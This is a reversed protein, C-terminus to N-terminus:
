AKKGITYIFQADWAVATRVVGEFLGPEEQFEDADWRAIEHLDHDKHYAADCFVLSTGFDVKFVLQKKLAAQHCREVPHYVTQSADDFEPRSNPHAIRGRKAGPKRNSSTRDTM